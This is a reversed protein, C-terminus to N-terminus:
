DLLPERKARFDAGTKVKSVLSSIMIEDLPDCSKGASAQHQERGEEANM